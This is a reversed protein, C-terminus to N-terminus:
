RQRMRSESNSVAVNRDTLFLRKIFARYLMDAGAADGWIPVGRAIHMPLTLSLNKYNCFIEAYDYYIIVFRRESAVSGNM